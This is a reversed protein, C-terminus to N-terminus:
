CARSWERKMINLRFILKTNANSRKNRICIKRNARYLEAVAKSRANKEILKKPVNYERTRTQWKKLNRMKYHNPFDKKAKAIEDDTM